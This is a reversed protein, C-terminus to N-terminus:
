LGTTDSPTTAPAPNSSLAQLMQGLTSEISTLDANIATRVNLIQNMITQMQGVDGAQRAQKMAAWNNKQATWQSKLDAMIQKLTARYPKLVQGPREHAQRAAKVAAQLQERGAKIQAREAKAESRMQLLQGYGQLDRIRPLQTQTTTAAVLTQTGDTSTDALASGALGLLMFVTLM